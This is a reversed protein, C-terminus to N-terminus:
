VAASVLWCQTDVSGHPETTQRKQRQVAMTAILKAQQKNAPYTINLDWFM